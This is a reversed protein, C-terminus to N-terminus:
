LKVAVEGPGATNLRIDSLVAQKFGELSITVTYRGIPMAPINFAGRENTVATFTTGTEDAKAVIDAGPLVAGSSDTVTGSLSSTVQAYAVTSVLAVLVFPSAVRLLRHKM